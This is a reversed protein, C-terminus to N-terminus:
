ADEITIDCTIFTAGSGGGWVGGNKQNDTYIPRIIWNASTLGDGSVNVNLTTSTGATPSSPETTISTIKFTM